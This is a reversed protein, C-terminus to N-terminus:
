RGEFAPKRKEAFAMVGEIFDKSRGMERQLDAEAELQGDLDAYM